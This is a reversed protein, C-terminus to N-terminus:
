QGSPLDGGLAKKVMGQMFDAMGKYEEAKAPPEFKSAPPRAFQIKTYRTVITKDGDLEVTKIPLNKLDTANWVTMEDKTGDAATITVKNKVCPHGDLTEEGLKETTTKSKEAKELDGKDMPTNIYMGAKEFIFYVAKKDPRVVVRVVDMGMQKLMASTDAPMDKNKTNATDVELCLKGDLMAFDMASSITATQNKDLQQVESRATFAADKGFLQAFTGFDAGPASTPLSPLGPIQAPASFDLGVLAALLLLTYKM